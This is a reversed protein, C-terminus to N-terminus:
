FLLFTWCKTYDSNASYLLKLKAVCFGTDQGLTTWKVNTINLVAHRYTAGLM